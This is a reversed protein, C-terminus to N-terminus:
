APQIPYHRKGQSKAGAQVNRKDAANKGKAGHLLQEITLIQIRPYKYGWGPSEYSGAQVAETEMDKSPPELTIFVGIQAKEGVTGKLDRVDGPKM